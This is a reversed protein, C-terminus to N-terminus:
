SSSKAAVAAEVAQRAADYRETLTAMDRRFQADLEDLRDTLAPLPLGLLLDRDQLLLLLLLLPPVCALLYLLLHTPPPRADSISPHISPDRSSVDCYVDSTAVGSAAVGSSSAAPSAATRVGGSAPAAAGSRGGASSAAAAAEKQERAHRLFAPVADSAGSRVGGAAADGAGDAMVMTGSDFAGGSAAADIGDRLHATSAALTHFQGRRLTGRWEIGGGAGGGGGGTGSSRMTGTWGDGGGGDGPRMTRGPVRRNVGGPAVLMTGGGSSDAAAAALMAARMTGGAGPRLTGAGGVGLLGGRLTGTAPSSGGGAAASASSSASAPAAGAGGKGGVVLTGAGGGAAGAAAAAAAPPPAAPVDGSADGGDGEGAEAAVEQRAQVLLPLCKGVLEELLPSCGGNASIRKVADAVFPHAQLEKASPRLKYDKKLCSSLFDLFAPSWSAPDKVTPPERSPVAPLCARM